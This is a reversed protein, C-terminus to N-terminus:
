VSQALEIKRFLEEPTEVSHYNRDKSRTYVTSLNEQSRSPVISLIDDVPLVYGDDKCKVYIFATKM